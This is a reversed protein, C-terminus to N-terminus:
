AEGSEADARRIVALFPEAFHKLKVAGVGNIESFEEPTSPRMEVMHLLSRDPFIVYAPVGREQALELRLERLAQLLGSGPEGAIEPKRKLAIERTKRKAKVLRDKRYRFEGRGRLLDNGTRTISLGGYGAIDLRLHGAAVLQRVFSRWEEKSRDDGVGFTKLRQHGWKRIRETEAGRVIDIVHAAGFKQGSRYVASLLKQADVTGDELAVPHLCIDCNGCSEAREGFYDLLAIRRCTPAECYGLLADLRKHERRRREDGADEQEIFRRRMAMDALGYLMHAEAPEGDRGARGIEQYYAELSGPLDLHMVFRVDAKDIGMGFAITAVMVIGTESMFSDQNQEREHKGMGAHYALARIGDSQLLAATEVTKRRSLCYIIGSEGAHGSLFDRLQKKWEQKIVVSLRINPRDFGLVFQSVGGSFLKAVIDERTVEDATATLAAIPVGEFLEPLRRLEEYEPRFSPGWQSICHAEDIAIINVPLSGLQALMQESMLREPSLYLLKTEGQVLRRWASENAQFSNGSNISDAAIGALRLASVQDQMLAILPSVVIAFGAKVLAPVQFCLSKGSGTPMVILAHRGALLAAVAAEQGPRFAEFGFTEHLVKKACAELPAEILKETRTRVAITEWMVPLPRRHRYLGAKSQDSRPSDRQSSDRCGQQDNKAKGAAGAKALLRAGDAKDGLRQGRAQATICFVRNLARAQVKKDGLNDDERMGAFPQGCAKIHVLVGIGADLEHGHRERALARVAGRKGYMQWAVRAREFEGEAHRFAGIVAVRQPGQWRKVVKVHVPGPLAAVLEQAKIEAIDPGKVEAARAAERLRWHARGLALACLRIAHANADAFELRPRDREGNANARENCSEVRACQAIADAVIM